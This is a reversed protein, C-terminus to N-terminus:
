YLNFPLCRVLMIGVSHTDLALLETSHCTKSAVDCTVPIAEISTCTHCINLKKEACVHM